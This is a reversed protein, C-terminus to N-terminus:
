PSPLLTPRFFHENDAAVGLMPKFKKGAFIQIANVTHPSTPTADTEIITLNHGDISFIYNPECSMSIIRLRYRKGQQVNVVSLDANPGGPFRGRGNILTADPSVPGQAYLV